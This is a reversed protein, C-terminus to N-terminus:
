STMHQLYYEKMLSATKEKLQEATQGAVPISPLFHFEIKGPWYYFKRNNPFIKNTNFLVAPLIDHGTEAALRFAGNHFPQLPEKTKNRTGEPYICMHLGMQLVEKMAIFSAKRSEENKRDVLVSGTKYIIGFLPIKSMEIKAITKNAGPIGPTTVPVDLLTNHNCVVIYTQGKKFNRKGKRIVWVGTLPLFLGMWAQSVRHFIRTRMPDKWLWAFSILIFAILLTSVFLLIAWLAIIRALINKISNM